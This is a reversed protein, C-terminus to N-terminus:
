PQVKVLNDANFELGTKDKIILIKIATSVSQKEQGPELTEKTETNADNPYGFNLKDNLEQKLTENLVSQQEGLRNMLSFLGEPGQKTERDMSQSNMPNLKPQERLVDTNSVQIFIIISHRASVVYFVEINGANDISLVSCLTKTMLKHTYKHYSELKDCEIRMKYVQKVRYHYQEAKTYDYKLRGSIAGFISVIASCLSFTMAGIVFIDTKGGAQWIYIVQIVM